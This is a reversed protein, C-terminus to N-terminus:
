PPARAGPSESTRANPEAAFEITKEELSTPRVNAATGRSQLDGLVRPKKACAEVIHDLQHELLLGGACGLRRLNVSKQMVAM